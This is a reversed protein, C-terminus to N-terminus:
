RYFVTGPGYHDILPGRQPIFNEASSGLDAEALLSAIGSPSGSRSHTAAQARHAEIIRHALHRILPIQRDLPRALRSLVQHSIVLFITDLGFCQM